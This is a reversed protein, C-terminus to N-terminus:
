RIIVPNKNAPHSAVKPLTLRESGGFQLRLSFHRIQIRFGGIKVSLELGQLSDILNSWEFHYLM